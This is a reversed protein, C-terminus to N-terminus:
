DACPQTSDAGIAELNPVDVKTNPTAAVASKLRPAWPRFALTWLSQVLLSLDSFISWDYLYQLDFRAKEESSHQERIGHV